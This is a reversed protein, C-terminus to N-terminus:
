TVPALQGDRAFAAGDSAAPTSSEIRACSALRAAHLASAVHPAIMELLRGRNQDCVGAAGYVSLVGVLTPGLMLPVSTCRQLNPDLEHSAGDFDLAADSDIVPQRTAA